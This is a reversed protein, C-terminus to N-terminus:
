EFEIRIGLNFTRGSLYHDVKRNFALDYDLVNVHNFANLLEERIILHFNNTIKFEQTFGIDFRGYFPLRGSNRKGKRFEYIGTEKNLIWKEWTFPYGSGYIIRVYTKSNPFREMHDEMYIAIQHRRDSPRALYGMNDNLIDERAVLYSYSVWNTAGTLFKGHLHADFGYAYGRADNEGSYILRVDHLDYSILDYLNKYYAELKFFMNENVFHKYGLTFQIMKQAILGNNEEDRFQFEKYIPPQAYKGAAFMLESINSLHWSLLFRPMILYEHNLSSTTWRLGTRVTLKELLDVKFQLFRATLLGSIASNRKYNDETRIFVHGTDTKEQKFEFLSDQISFNKLELGMNIQLSSLINWTLNLKSTLLNNEFRNNVIHDRTSEQQLIIDGLLEKKIYNLEENLNTNEFENKKYMTNQCQLSFNRFLYNIKLAIIKDSYNFIEKGSFNSKYIERFYNQVRYYKYEWKSPKVAFKSKAIFGLITLKLKRNISLNIIGQFDTFDPTYNGKTQLSSFLFGYNIKRLGFVATLSENPQFACSSNLGLTGIDLSASVPQTFKDQYTVDLVSSLKDGYTVPFVGTSLNLNKVLNPNVLSPNEAIGKRVLQPQYIEIGNIYILNEDLNGGRVNYFSSQDNLSSVGPLTKLSLLAEPLPSAMNKLERAKIKYSTIKQDLKNAAVIVKDGFIVKSILKIDLFLNQVKTTIIIEKTKERYGVYSINLEHEGLPVSLRFNGAMDTATGIDLKKIYVNAGYLPLSTKSDIIKGNVIVINNRNTKALANNQYYELFFISLLLLIVIKCKMANAVNRIIQVFSRNFQVTITKPFYRLM